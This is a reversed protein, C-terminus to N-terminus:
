HIDVFNLGSIGWPISFSPKRYESDRTSVHLCTDFNKKNKEQFIM